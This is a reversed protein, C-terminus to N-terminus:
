GRPTASKSLSPYHFDEAPQLPMKENLFTQLPATDAPKDGVKVRQDRSLQTLLERFAEGRQNINALAMEDEAAEAQIQSFLPEFERLVKNANVERQMLLATQVEDVLYDLQQYTSFSPAQNARYTAYAVPLVPQALICLMILGSIMRMFRQSFGHYRRRARWARIHQQRRYQHITQTVSQIIVQLTM